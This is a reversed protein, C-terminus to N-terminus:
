FHYISGRRFLNQFRDAQPCTGTVLGDKEPLALYLYIAHNATVSAFVLLEWPRYLKEIEAKSM